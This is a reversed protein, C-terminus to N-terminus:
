EGGGRRPPLCPPGGNPSPPQPAEHAAKPGDGAGPRGDGERFAGKAIREVEEQPLRLVEALGAAVFPQATEAMACATGAPLAAMVPPLEHAIRALPRYLQEWELVDVTDPDVAEAPKGIVYLFLLKTAALDGSKAQVVLDEAIQAIDEVTVRRLLAARLAAVRRAFLNGPGGANGKV